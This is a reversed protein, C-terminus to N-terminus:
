RKNTFDMIHRTEHVESFYRVLSPTVSDENHFLFRIRTRKSDLCIFIKSGEINYKQVRSVLGLYKQIGKQEFIKSWYFKTKKDM